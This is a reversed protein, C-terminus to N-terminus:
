RHDAPVAPAKGKHTDTKFDPHAPLPPLFCGPLARQQECPQVTGGAHSRWETQSPLSLFPGDRYYLRVPRGPHISRGTDSFADKRNQFFARQVPFPSDQKQPLPYGFRRVSRSQGRTGPLRGPTSKVPLAAARRVPWSQRLFWKGSQVLAPWQFGSVAPKIYGCRVRIGERVPRKREPSFRQKHRLRVIDSRLPGM